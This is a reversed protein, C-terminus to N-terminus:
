VAHGGYSGARPLVVVPTYGAEIPVAAAGGDPAGHAGNTGNGEAAAEHPHAAELWPKLGSIDFGADAFNRIIAAADQERALVLACAAASRSGSYCCAYIPAPMESIAAAFRALEQEPPTRSALPVHRYALGAAACEAAIEASTLLREVEGDSQNNILSKFGARALIVIQERTPVEGVALVDSVVVPRM